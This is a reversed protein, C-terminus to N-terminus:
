WYLWDTVYFRNGPMRKIYLNGAEDEQLMPMYKKPYNGSGRVPGHGREGHDGFEHHWRYQRKEPSRLDQPISYTLSVLRGVSQKRGVPDPWNFIQSKESACNHFKKHLRRVGYGVDNGNKGTRKMIVLQKGKPLYGIMLHRPNIKRRRGHVEVELEDLKGMLMGETPAPNRRAIPAADLLVRHVADLAEAKTMPEMDQSISDEDSYIGNPDNWELFDILATRRQKSWDLSDAKAWWRNRAAASQPYTGLIRGWHTTSVKSKRPM